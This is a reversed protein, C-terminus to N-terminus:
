GCPSSSRHRTSSACSALPCATRGNLFPRIVRRGRAPRGALLELFRTDAAARGAGLVATVEGARLAGGCPALRVADGDALALDAWALRPPPQADDDEEGGSDSPSRPAEFAKYAAEALPNPGSTETAGYGSAM